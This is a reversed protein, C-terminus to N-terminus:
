VPVTTPKFAPLQLKEKEQPAQLADLNTYSKSARIPGPDPPPSTTPRSTSGRSKPRESPVAPREVPSHHSVPSSGTSPSTSGSHMKPLKAPRRPRHLLEGSIDLEVLRDEDSVSATTTVDDENEEGVHEEVDEELAAAATQLLSLAHANLFPHSACLQYIGTCTDKVRALQQTM